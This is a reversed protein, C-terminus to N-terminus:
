QENKDKIYRLNQIFKEWISAIEELELAVHKKEEPTLSAFNKFKNNLVSFRVFSAMFDGFVEPPLKKSLEALKEPKLLEDLAEELSKGELEEFESIERIMKGLMKLVEVLLALEKVIREYESNM